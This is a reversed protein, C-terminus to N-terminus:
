VSLLLPKLNYYLYSVPICANTILVNFDYKFFFLLEHKVRFLSM